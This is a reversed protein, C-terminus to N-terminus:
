PAPEPAASTDSAPAKPPAEAAAKARARMFAAALQTRVPAGFGQPVEGEGDCVAADSIKMLARIQAAHSATWDRHEGHAKAIEMYNLTAAFRIDWLQLDLEAQIADTVDPKDAMAEILAPREVEALRPRLLPRTTNMDQMQKEQQKRQKWLKVFEFKEGM